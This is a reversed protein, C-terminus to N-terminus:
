GHRLKEPAVDYGLRAMTLNWLLATKAAGHQLAFYRLSLPEKLGLEEVQLRMLENWVVERILWRPTDPDGDKFAAAFWYWVPTADTLDAVSLITARAPWPLDRAEASHWRPVKAVPDLPPREPAPTRARKSM